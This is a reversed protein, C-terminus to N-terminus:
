SIDLEAQHVSGDATGGFSAVNLLRQFPEVPKPIHM